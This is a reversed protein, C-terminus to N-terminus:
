PLDIAGEWYAIESEDWIDLKNFREPHNEPDECPGNAAHEPNLTHHCNSIGPNMMRFCGVKNNCVDMGDCLYAIDPKKLDSRNKQEM